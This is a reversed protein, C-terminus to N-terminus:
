RMEKRAMRVRIVEEQEILDLQEEMAALEDRLEPLVVNELARVRRETRRYERILRKLNAANAALTAGVSFLERYATMCARVEPGPRAPDPSTPTAGADFTAELMIQGICPRRELHLRANSLEAAPVVQLGDLGQDAAANGLTEAATDSLLMFQRFADRYADRQRLMEAALLIRKEDLFEYGDNVLRLEERLGLWASRSVTQTRPAEPM